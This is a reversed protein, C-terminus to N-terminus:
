GLWAGVTLATKKLKDIGALAEDRQQRTLHENHSIGEAKRDLETVFLGSIEIIQGLLPIMSYILLLGVKHAAVMLRAGRPGRTTTMIEELVWRLKETLRKASESLVMDLDGEESPWGPVLEPMVEDALRMAVEEASTRARGM